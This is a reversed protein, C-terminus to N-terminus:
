FKQKNRRPRKDVNPNKNTRPLPKEDDFDTKANYVEVFLRPFKGLWFKVFLKDTGMKDNIVESEQYHVATNRMATLLAIINGGINSVNSANNPAIEGKREHYDKKVKKLEGLVEQGISKSWDTCGLTTRSIRNLRQMFDNEAKKENKEKEILKNIDIFFKVIESDSWFFPHEKIQSATLRETQKRLHMKHILDACLIDDYTPDKDAGKKVIQDVSYILLDQTVLGKSFVNLFLRSLMSIDDFKNQDSRIEDSKSIVVTTFDVLKVVFNQCGEVVCLNEPELAFCTINREHLYEVVDALQSLVDKYNEGLTPIVEKLPVGLHEMVLYAKEDILMIFFLRAINVHDIQSLYSARETTKVFTAPNFGVFGSYFAGLKSKFVPRDDAITVQPNELLTTQPESQSVIRSRQSDNLGESCSFLNGM